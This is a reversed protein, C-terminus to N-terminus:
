IKLHYTHISNSKLSSCDRGEKSSRRSAAPIQPPLSLRSSPTISSSKDIYFEDTIKSYIDPLPDLVNNSFHSTSQKLEVRHARVRRFPAWRPVKCSGHLWLCIDVHGAHTLLLYGKEKTNEVRGKAGLGRSKPLRCAVIPDVMGQSGRGLGMGRSSEGTLRNCRVDVFATDPTEAGLGLAKPRQIVQIPESIGRGDKGLGGGDVYGMKAMM